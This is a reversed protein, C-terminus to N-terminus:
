KVAKEIQERLWKSGGLERLKKHHEISLRIKYERTNVRPRGAGPRAGGRKSKKKVETM